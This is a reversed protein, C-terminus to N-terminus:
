VSYGGDSAAGAEGEEALADIFRIFVSIWGFITAFALLEFATLSYYGVPEFLLAGGLLLVVAGTCFWFFRRPMGKLTWPASVLMGLFTLSMGIASLNHLWFSVDLPFIGVCALLVGMVVFVTAVFRPAWAHALVGQRVLTTLDRHVYLAFTTVFAGGIIVALNFLRSSIDDATGLQSFHYEWWAPDQATAMSAFVSTGMFVVLLTALRNTTVASVSLAIWYAALGATAATAATSTFADVIIGEFARQLAVFVAVTVLGAIAAHVTAVTAVDLATKWPRLRRRWEQGPLDRSRRYEVAGIVIGTVIVSIAAVAGVSWKGWLPWVLGRFFVWGVLGSTTAAIAGAVLAETELALRRRASAAPTRISARAVANRPAPHAGEAPATPAAM